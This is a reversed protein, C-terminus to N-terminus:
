ELAYPIFFAPFNGINERRWAQQWLALNHEHNAAGWNETADLLIRDNAEDGGPFDPGIYWTLNGSTSTAQYNIQVTNGNIITCSNPTFANEDTLTIDTNVVQPIQIYDLSGDPGLSLNEQLVFAEVADETLIFNTDDSPFEIVLGVGYTMMENRTASVCLLYNGAELPYFMENGKDEFKPRFTNYLDSQAGAVHDWYGSARDNIQRGQIVAYNQDYVSVNFRVDVQSFTNNVPNINETALKTGAKIVIIWAPEDITIQFWHNYTYNGYGGQIIESRPGLDGILLRLTTQSFTGLNLPNYQSRERQSRAM